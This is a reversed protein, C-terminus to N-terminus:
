MLIFFLIDLRRCFVLLFFFIFLIFVMGKLFFLLMWCERGICYIWWVEGRGELMSGFDWCFFMYLRFFLFDLFDMLFDEINVLLVLLIDDRFSLFNESM